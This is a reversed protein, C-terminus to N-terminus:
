NRPGRRLTRSNGRSNKRTRSPLAHPGPLLFEGVKRIRTGATLIWRIVAPALHRLVLVRMVQRVQGVGHKIGSM